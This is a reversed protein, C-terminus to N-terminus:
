VYMHIYTYKCIFICGNKIYTYICDDRLIWPPNIGPGALSILIQLYELGM